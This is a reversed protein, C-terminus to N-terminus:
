AVDSFSRRSYSLILGSIWIRFNPLSLFVKSSEARFPINGVEEEWPELFRQL